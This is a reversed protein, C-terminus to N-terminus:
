VSWGGATHGLREFVYVALALITFAISAVLAALSDFKLTYQTTCQEQPIAAWVVEAGGLDNIVTSTTYVTTTTCIQGAVEKLDGAAVIAAAIFAVTAYSIPVAREIFHLILLALALGFAIVGLM